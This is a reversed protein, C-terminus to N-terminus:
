NKEPDTNNNNNNGYENCLANCVLSRKKTRERANEPIKNWKLKEITKLYFSFLKVAFIAITQQM